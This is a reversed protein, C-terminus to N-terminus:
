DTGGTVFRAQAGINAFSPKDNSLYAQVFEDFTIKATSNASDALEPRSRYRYWSFLWDIPDRIVALTIPDNPMMPSIFSDLKNNFVKPSLHKARPNNNFLMDAKPGLAQHFATSGTKPTAFFVLSKDIFIMM